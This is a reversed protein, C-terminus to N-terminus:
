LSIMIYNTSVM